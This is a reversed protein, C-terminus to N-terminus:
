VGRVRSVVYAILILVGVVALVVVRAKGLSEQTLRM